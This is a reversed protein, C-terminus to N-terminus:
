SQHFQVCHCNTDQKQPGDCRCLLHLCTRNNIQKRLESGCSADVFGILKPQFIDVTFERVVDPLPVPDQHDSNPLDNLFGDKPRCHKVGWSKTMCLCNTLGKLLRCHCEWPSSSLKSLTTVFHAVDPRATVMVHMLEGPVVRM